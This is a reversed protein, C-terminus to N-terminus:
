RRLLSSLLIPFMLGLLESTLLALEPEPNRGGIAAFGLVIEERFVVGLSVIICLVWIQLNFFRRTFTWAAEEGSEAKTQAFIPIFGSTMAGEAVLRRLLNPIQFAIGFADSAFSTGLYHAHVQERILGLFRSGM